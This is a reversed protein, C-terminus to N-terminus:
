AVGLGVGRLSFGWGLMAGVEVMAQMALKRKMLSVGILVGDDALTLLTDGDIWALMERCVNSPTGGFFFSFIPFYLLSSMTNM